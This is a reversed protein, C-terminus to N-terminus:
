MFATCVQEAWHIPYRPWSIEPAVYLVNILWASALLVIHPYQTPLPNFSLWSLVRNSNKFTRKKQTEAHQAVFLTGLSLRM